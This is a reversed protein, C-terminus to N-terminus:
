EEDNAISELTDRLVGLARQSLMDIKILGMYEIPYMDPQTIIMGIGKNKSYQLAVYNNIPKPTIIVGSPHISIHRPFGALQSAIKVITKWPEDSFDLEKSEPYREAITELNKASSWPIYKSYKSIEYESVGFAKATERFASRARFTVTTSIMAVHSYGYKDFVYKIM